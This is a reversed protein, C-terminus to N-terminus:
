KRSFSCPSRDNKQTTRFRFTSTLEKEKLFKETPRALFPNVTKKRASIELFKSQVQSIRYNKSCSRVSQGDEYQQWLDFLRRQMARYTSLQHRKLKKDSILRIQMNVLTAERHLLQILIYLPLQSRGKARRNLGNHWGELDNNTRVAELFVSWTQPPFIQSSIWNENIYNCFDQLPRATAEQQLRHFRRGIKEAPLYPLAM